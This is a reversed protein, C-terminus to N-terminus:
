RSVQILKTKCGAVNKKLCMKLYFTCLTLLHKRSPMELKLFEAVFKHKTPSPCELFKACFEHDHFNCVQTCNKSLPLFTVTYSLFNAPYFKRWYGTRQIPTFNKCFKIKGVAYTAWELFYHTPGPCVMNHAHM